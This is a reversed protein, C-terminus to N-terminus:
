CALAPSSGASADLDDEDLDDDDFDLDDDDLDDDDDEDEDDFDDDLDDDDEDEDDFDDDDFDDDDDLDEPDDFEDEDDLALRVTPLGASALWAPRDFPIEELADAASAGFQELMPRNEQPITLPVVHVAPSLQPDLYGAIIPPDRRRRL